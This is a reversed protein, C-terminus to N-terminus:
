FPVKQHVVAFIESKDSTNMWQSIGVMIEHTKIIIIKKLHGFVLM